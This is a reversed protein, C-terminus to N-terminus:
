SGAWYRLPTLEVSAAGNGTFYDRWWARMETHTCFDLGPQPLAHTEALLVRVDTGTFDRPKLDAYRPRQSFVAFPPMEGRVACFQAARSNQVGDTIITFGRRTGQFDPHRSIERLQELIPSDGARQGPDTADAIIANTAAEFAARAEAAERALYPAPKDPAGLAAQQAPTAAPKCADFVPIPVSGQAGRTTAFVLVRANAPADDYARAFGARYDRIQADSQGSLSADLFVAVAAQDTRAYCGQADPKEVGLYQTMALAGGGIVFAPMATGLLITKLSFGSQGGRRPKRHQSRSRRSRTNSRKM